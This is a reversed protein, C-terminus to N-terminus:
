GTAETSPRPFARVASSPAGVSITRDCGLLLDDVGSLLDERDPRETPDHVWAFLNRDHSRGGLAQQPPHRL